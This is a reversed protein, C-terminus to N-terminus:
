PSLFPFSSLSHRFPSLSLTSLDLVASCRSARGTKVQHKKNQFDGGENNKVCRQAAAGSSALQLLDLRNSSTYKSEKRCSM